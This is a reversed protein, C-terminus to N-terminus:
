IAPMFTASRGTIHSTFSERFDYGAGAALACLLTISDLSESYTSSILLCVDHFLSKLTHSVSYRRHFLALISKFSSFKARLAGFGPKWCRTRLLWALSECSSLLRNPSLALNAWFLFHEETHTGRDWRLWNQRVMEWFLGRWGKNDLVKYLIAPQCHTGQLTSQWPKWEPNLLSNEEQLSRTAVKTYM